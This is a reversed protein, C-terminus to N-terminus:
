PTEKSAEITSTDHQVASRRIRTLLDALSWIAMVGVLPLFLLWGLVRNFVRRFRM